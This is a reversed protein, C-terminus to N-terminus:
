RGKYGNPVKRGPAVVVYDSSVLRTKDGDKNMTDRIAVGKIKNDEVM